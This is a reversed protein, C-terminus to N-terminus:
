SDLASIPPHIHVIYAALPHGKSLGMVHWTICYAAEWEAASAPGGMDLDGIFNVLVLWAEQGNSRLWQLHAMRNAIQYFLGTWPARPAAGLSQATTAFAKEIMARSPESAQTPPSCMEDVHAKAEVLLIDGTDTRALADWQPGRAPWFDKLAGALHGVGIRELFDADRYEAFDDEALPSLWEICAAGQLRSLILSDLAEPWENVAKQIWKLSGRSGTKQAVRM